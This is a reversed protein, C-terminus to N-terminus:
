LCNHAAMYTSPVSGPDKSFATLARLWQASEGAGDDFRKLSRMEQLVFSPELMLNGPPRKRRLNLM